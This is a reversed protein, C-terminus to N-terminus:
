CQWKNGSLPTFSTRWLTGEDVSLEHRQWPPCKNIKIKQWCRRRSVVMFSHIPSARRRGDYALDTLWCFAFFFRAFGVHYNAVYTLSCRTLHCVYPFTQGALKHWVETCKDHGIQCASSGVDISLTGTGRLSTFDIEILFM